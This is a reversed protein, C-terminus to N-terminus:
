TLKSFSLYNLLIDGKAINLLHPLKEFFQSSRVLIKTNPTIDYGVLSKMAERVIGPMDIVDNKVKQSWFGFSMLSESRNLGIGALSTEFALYDGIAKEITADTTM